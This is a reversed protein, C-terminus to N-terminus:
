ELKLFEYLFQSTEFLMFIFWRPFIGSYLLNLMGYEVRHQEMMLGSM